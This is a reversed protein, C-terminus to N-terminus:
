ANTSEKFLEPHTSYIKVFLHKRSRPIWQGKIGKSKGRQKIKGNVWFDSKQPTLGKYEFGSARYIIGTHGVKTDALTLIGKVSFNKRLLRITIAIFRSESNKPAINDMALRKIEWWGNQTKEDYLGKMKKANPSGYSIVGRLFNNFYAGYNVTSLFDTNGLYHWKKYFNTTTLHNVPRIFMQLPSIPTAGENSSQFLDQEVTLSDGCNSMKEGSMEGATKIKEV